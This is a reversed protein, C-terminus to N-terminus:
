EYRILPFTKAFACVPFITSSKLFITSKFKLADRDYKIGTRDKAKPTYTATRKSSAMSFFIRCQRWYITAKSIIIIITTEIIGSFKFLRALASRDKEQAM